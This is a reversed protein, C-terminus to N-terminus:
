ANTCLTPVSQELVVEAYGYRSDPWVAVHAWARGLRGQYQVRVLAGFNVQMEGRPRHEQREYVRPDRKRSRAVRKKVREYCATFAPDECLALYVNWATRGSAALEIIRDAFLDLKSVPSSRAPPM